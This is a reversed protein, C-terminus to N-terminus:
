YTLQLARTRRGGLLQGHIQGHTKRKGAYKRLDGCQFEIKISRLIQQGHSLPWYQPLIRFSGERLSAVENCFALMSFLYKWVHLEVEQSETVDPFIGLANEVLAKLFNCLLACVVGLTVQQKRLTCKVSSGLPFKVHSLLADLLEALFYCNSGVKIFAAHARLPLPVCGLNAHTEDWSDCKRSISIFSLVLATFWDQSDKGFTLETNAHSAVESAAVTVEAEQDLTWMGCDSLESSGSSLTDDYGSDAELPTRSAVSDHPESSVAICGKHFGYTTFHNRVLDASM